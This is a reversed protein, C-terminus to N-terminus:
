RVAAFAGSTQREEPRVVPTEVGTPSVAVVALAGDPRRTVKWDPARVGQVTYGEAPLLRPPQPAPAATPAALPALSVGQMWPPRARGLLELVTPTVDVVGALSAVRRGAAVLGPARVILPVRLQEEVIGTAHGMAGGQEGFAEGHDSTVVVITRDAVGLEDLAAFLPELAADTYAVEATYKALDAAAGPAPPLGGPAVPLDRRTAIADYAPPPTYPGHVQYTHVFLFFPERAHARLWEVSAQVTREVVGAAWGVDKDASFRDFGRQFSGPDVFADETFAGTRYGADRLIEALPTVGIPLPRGLLPDDRLEAESRQDFENIGLGHVCSYTGTLMGAHSPITWSAQAVVQEFLTGERALADLVPTLPLPYGYAGLRDARLTDLSVFLVNRPAPTGRPAPGWITPNGIAVYALRDAARSLERKFELRLTGGLADRAAALPVRHAHWRGDGPVTTRLLPVRRGSPGIARVAFRLPHLGVTGVLGLDLYLEDGAGVELTGTRVLSAPLVGVRVVHGVPKEIVGTPVDVAVATGDAPCTRRVVMTETGAHEGHLGPLTRVEVMVARGALDGDCAVDVRSTGRADTTGARIQWRGPGPGLVYATIAGIQATVPEPEGRSAADADALHQRAVRWSTEPACASVVACLVGLAAMPRRVGAQM